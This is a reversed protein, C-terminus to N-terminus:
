SGGLAAAATRRSGFGARFRAAALFIARQFILLESSEDSVLFSIELLESRLDLRLLDRLELVCVLRQRLERLDRGLARKVDARIQVARVHLELALLFGLEATQPRARRLWVQSLVDLIRREAGRNEIGDADNSLFRHRM